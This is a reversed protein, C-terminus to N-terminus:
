YQPPLVNQAFQGQYNGPPYYNAVVYIRGSRSTAKGVGLEKSSKWVVQTFHGVNEM